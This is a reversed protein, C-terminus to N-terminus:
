PPPWELMPLPMCWERYDERWARLCSTISWIWRMKWPEHWSGVNWLLFFRYVIDVISVHIFTYIFVFCVFYFRTVYTNAIFWSGMSLLRVINLYIGIIIMGIRFSWIDNHCIQFRKTWTKKKLVDVWSSYKCFYSSFFYFRKVFDSYM